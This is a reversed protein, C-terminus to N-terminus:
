AKAPVRYIKIDKDIVEIPQLKKFSFAHSVIISGEKMEDLIKDELQLMSKPLLYLFLKNCQSLDAKWFSKTLFTTNHLKLFFAKLRAYINLMPNIEFGVADNVGKRAAMIVLRGDGSGLDYVTDEPELDAAEIMKRAKKKSSPVFPAALLGQFLSFFFFVLTIALLIYLLILKIQVLISV